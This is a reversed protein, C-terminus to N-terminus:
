SLNLQILGFTKPKMFPLYDKLKPGEFGPPASHFDPMPGLTGTSSMPLSGTSPDTPQISPVTNQM